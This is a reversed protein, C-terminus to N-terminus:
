SRCTTDTYVGRASATSVGTAAVGASPSAAAGASPSAFAASASAFSVPLSLSFFYRDAVTGAMRSMAPRPFGPGCYSCVGCLAPTHNTSSKDFRKAIGSLTDGRRVTYRVANPEAAAGISLLSVASAVLVVVLWRMSGGFRVDM